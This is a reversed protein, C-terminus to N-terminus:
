DENSVGCFTLLGSIGSGQGAARSWRISPPKLLLRSLFPYFLFQAISTYRDVREMRGRSFFLFWPSVLQIDLFLLSNDFLAGTGNVGGVGHESLSSQNVNVCCLSFSLSFNCQFDFPSPSFFFFVVYNVFLAYIAQSM